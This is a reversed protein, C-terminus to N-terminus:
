EKRKKKKKVELEYTNKDMTIISIISSVIGFSIFISIMGIWWFPFAFIIIIIGSILTGFFLLTLYNLYLRKITM